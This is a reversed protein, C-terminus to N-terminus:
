KFLKQNEVEDLITSQIRNSVDKLGVNIRDADITNIFEQFDEPSSFALAYRTTVFRNKASTVYYSSVISTNGFSDAKFVFKIPVNKQAYFRDNNIWVLLLKPFKIDIDKSFDKVNNTKAISDWECFKAKTLKLADRLKGLKNTEIQFFSSNSSKVFVWIVSKKAPLGCVPFSDCYYENEYEYMEFDRYIKEVTESLEVEAQTTQAIVFLPFLLMVIAILKKM